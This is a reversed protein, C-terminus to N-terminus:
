SKVRDPAAILYSGYAVLWLVIPYANWREIGGEGLQAVPAWDLLFIGLAIAVLSIAGLLIWLIRFPHETERASLIVAIGGSFFATMAFVTHPGPHTLPFIGVGLVGTGLLATFISAAKPGAARYMWWAGALILVGTLLMTGDFIAASPQTVVSDPPESAGLHSLTDAHTTYAGDFLAEATISGMLVGIGALTLCLGSLRSARAQGPRASLSAAAPAEPVESATTM